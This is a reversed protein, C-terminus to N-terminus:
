DILVLGTWKVRAKSSLSVPLGANKCTEIVDIGMAQMSPRAEFPRRCPENGATGVCEECLECDSGILGAALYYGKKFAAAELRNVLEHLRIGLERTGTERELRACVERNLSEDSKDASDFASEIQVIIARRYLRVIDRFEAVALTNPPCMLHRGYNECRPISCKLRVREDIVVDVASIMKARTAGLHKAMEVLHEDKQGAM